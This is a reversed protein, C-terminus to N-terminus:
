SRSEKEEIGSMKTRRELENLIDQFPIEKNSLLVMMHYIVDASEYIISKKDDKSAAIILEIAEEGFKKQIEEVGKKFLSATYSQNPNDDKKTEILEQLEKLTKM